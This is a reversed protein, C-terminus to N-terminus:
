RKMVYTKGGINKLKETKKNYSGQFKRLVGAPLSSMAKVQNGRPDLKDKSKRKPTPKAGPTAKSTFGKRPDNGKRKPRSTPGTVNVSSRKPRSTPAAVATGKGSKRIDDITALTASTVAGGLIARKARPNNRLATIVNPAQKKAAPKKAAPKKPAQKAQAASRGGQSKARNSKSAASTKPKTTKTTKSGASKARTTKAAKATKAGTTLAKVGKSALSIIKGIPLLSAAGGVVKVYTDRKKKALAAPTIGQKKADRALRAARDRILKERTEKQSLGKFSKTSRDEAM